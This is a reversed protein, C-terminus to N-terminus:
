QQAHFSQNTYINTPMVNEPANELGLILMFASQLELRFHAPSLAPFLSAVPQKREMPGCARQQKLELIRVPTTTALGAHSLPFGSKPKGTKWTTSALAGDSGCGKKRNVPLATSVPIGDQLAAPTEAQGSVNEGRVRYRENSARTQRIARLQSKTELIAGGAAAIAVERVTHPLREVPIAAPAQRPCGFEGHCVRV